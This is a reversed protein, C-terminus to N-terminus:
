EASVIAKRNQAISELWLGYALKRRRRPLEERYRTVRAAAQPTTAIAHTECDDGYAIAAWVAALEAEDRDQVKVVRVGRVTAITDQEPGGIGVAVAYMHDSSPGWPRTWTFIINKGELHPDAGLAFRWKDIHVQRPYGRLTLEGGIDRLAQHVVTNGRDHWMSPFFIPRFFVFFHKKRGRESM